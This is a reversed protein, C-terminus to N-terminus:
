GWLASLAQYLGKAKSLLCNYLPSHISVESGNNTFLLSTDRLCYWWVIRSLAKRPRILARRISAGSRYGYGVDDWHICLRESKFFSCLTNSILISAIVNAITSVQQYLWYPRVDRGKWDCLQQQAVWRFSERLDCEHIYFQIWVM